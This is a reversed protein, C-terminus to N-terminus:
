SEEKEIAQLESFLNERANCLEEHAKELTELKIAIDTFSGGSNLRADYEEENMQIQEDIRAIDVKKLAWKESHGMEILDNFLKGVNLM